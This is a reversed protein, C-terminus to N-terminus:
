RWEDRGPGRRTPAALGASRPTLGISDVGGGGDDDDYDGYADEGGGGWESSIQPPMFGVGCAETLRGIANRLQRASHGRAGRLAGVAMGLGELVEEQEAPTLDDAVGEPDPIEIADEIRGQANKEGRDLATTALRTARQGLHLSRLGGGRGPRFPSRSALAEFEGGAGALDSVNGIKIGRRGM